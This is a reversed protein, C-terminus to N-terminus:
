EYKNFKKMGGKGSNKLEENTNFREIKAKMNLEDAYYKTPNILKRAEERVKLNLGVNDFNAKKAKRAAEIVQNYKIDSAMDGTKPKIEKVRRVVKRKIPEGM